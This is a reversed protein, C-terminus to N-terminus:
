YKQDYDLGTEELRGGLRVLGNKEMFPYIGFPKSHRKVPLRTRFYRLEEPYPLEGLNISANFYPKMLKMLQKLKSEKGKHNRVSYIFYIHLM